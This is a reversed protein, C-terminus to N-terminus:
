PKPNEKLLSVAKSGKEKDRGVYIYLATSSLIVEERKYRKALGKQWEAVYVLQNNSVEDVISQDWSTQIQLFHVNSGIAPNHTQHEPKLQHQDGLIAVCRSQWCM